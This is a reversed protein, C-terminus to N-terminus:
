TLDLTPEGIYFDGQEDMDLRKKIEEVLKNLLKDKDEIKQIRGVTDAFKINWNSFDKCKVDITYKIRIDNYAERKKPENEIVEIEFNGRITKYTFNM